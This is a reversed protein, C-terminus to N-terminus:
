YNISGDIGTLTVVNPNNYHLTITGTFSGTANSFRGTGGAFEAYLAATAATPGFMLDYPNINVYIEEGNAARFSACEIVIHNGIQTTGAMIPSACTKNKSRLLGMHTVTGQGDFNGVTALTGCNCPLNLTTNLTYTMSGKFPVSTSKQMATAATGNDATTSVVDNGAKRCSMITLLMIAILLPHKM